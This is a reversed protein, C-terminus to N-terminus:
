VDVCSGRAGPENEMIRCDHRRVSEHSVRGGDDVCNVEEGVDGYMFLEEEPEEEFEVEPPGMKKPSGNAPYVVAKM